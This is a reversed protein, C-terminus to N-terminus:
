AAEDNPMIPTAAERAKVVVIRLQVVFSQAALSKM